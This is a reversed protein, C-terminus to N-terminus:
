KVQESLCFVLSTTSSITSGLLNSLCDPCFELNLEAVCLALIECVVAAVEGKKRRRYRVSTTIWQSQITVIILGVSTTTSKKQKRKTKSILNFVPCLCVWLAVIGIIVNEPRAVSLHYVFAGFLIVAPTISSIINYVHGWKPVVNRNPSIVLYYISFLLFILWSVESTQIPKSDFFNCCLRATWSQIPDTASHPARPVSSTQPVASQRGPGQNGEGATSCPDVGVGGGSSNKKVAASREWMLWSPPPPMRLSFSLFFFPQFWNDIKNMDDKKESSNAKWTNIYIRTVMALRFTLLNRQIESSKLHCSLM